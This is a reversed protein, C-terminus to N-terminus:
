NRLITEAIRACNRAYDRDFKRGIAEEFEPLLEMLDAPTSCKEIKLVFLFSRLGLKDAATECLYRKGDSYREFSSRPQFPAPAGTPAEDDRRMQVSAPVPLAIAEIFGNQVLQDFDDERIGIGGILSYVQAATRHGDTLILLPRLRRDVTRQATTIEALGRSTKRYIAKKDL